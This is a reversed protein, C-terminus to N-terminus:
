MAKPLFLVCKTGKDLESHIVFSGQPSSEMRKRINTVGVGKSHDLHMLQYIQDESMGVGDDEVAVRVFGEGETITLSVTGSGLKNFLGHRIANEVLPQILLAPVMIEEELIGLDIYTEYRLREGFRLREIEVYAQIIDLEQRLPINHRSHDRQFIYRLYRSLVSLLEAAREGDEYCLAIINSLANYIFHPKIQAQLFSIEHQVAADMADTLQLLVRVRSQIEEGSFPKTIYDNAGAQYALEIDKDSDRVTAIIIPLDIISHTLRIRQTLEIGSMGPMMMDAIVLDIRESQLLKLVEDGHYATFLEYEGELMLSLVHINTPEDDVLLIRKAEQKAVSPPPPMILDRKKVATQEATIKIEQLKGKPLRISMGTGEGMVSHSVWIDGEMKRVLQRSIYLGLGMGNDSLGQPLPRRYSDEFVLEWQEAPIGRGTDTITIVVEEGEVKASAVIEGRETHKVANVTINYLIQRLRDEDAEIFTMSKVRNILKLEKGKTDFSLLQFVIQIVVYIDVTRIQLQIDEHHLKTADILDNVLLSLKVSTDQILSINERQKATLPNEGELLYASINIVGHLPTKLEHSTRALFEDKIENSHRLEESLVQVEIMKNTFRRALMVNLSILFGIMSLKEILNTDTYGSYYLISNLLMIAIFMISAAVSSMESVLQKKEQKKLLIYILRFAFVFLLMGAYLTMFGKFSVYFRYSTVVVILLYFVIPSILFGATRRKMVGPEFSRIFLMMVLFSASLAIDQLKYAVLFPVDDMVTMFLKEGSTATILSLLILYIGSYLYTSEKDRMQYMQLHYVGFMLLLIIGAMDLGFSLQSKMVMSQEGGLQIPNAIGGTYYVQNSVQIIIDLKETPEITVSYPTNRPEYRETDSGFAGMEKVLVGNIFLRHAMWINKVKLVFKEKVEPLSVSLHYTGNGKAPQVDEEGWAGPVKISNAGRSSLEEPLLLSQPYFDWQGNLFVIGENDFDWQSLNLQGRKAEPSESTPLTIYYLTAFLTIVVSMIVLLSITRKVRSYERM